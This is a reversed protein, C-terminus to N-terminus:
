SYCVFYQFLRQYPGPLRTQNILEQAQYSTIVYADQFRDRFEAQRSYWGGPFTFNIGTEHERPFAFAGSSAMITDNVFNPLHVMLNAQIRVTQHNPPYNFGTAPNKGIMELLKRYRVTMYYQFSNIVTRGVEAGPDATFQFADAQFNAGLIANAETNFDFAAVPPPPPLQPVGAM